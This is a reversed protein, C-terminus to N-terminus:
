IPNGLEMGVFYNMPIDLGVVDEDMVRLELNTVKAERLLESNKMVVGSSIVGDKSCGWRHGWLDEGFM